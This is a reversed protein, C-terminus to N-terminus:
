HLRHSCCIRCSSAPSVGPPIHSSMRVEGKYICPTRLEKPLKLTGPSSWSPPDFGFSVEHVSTHLTRRSLISISVMSITQAGVPPAASRSLIVGATCLSESFQFDWVYCICSACPYDKLAEVNWRCHRRQESQLGVATESRKFSPLPKHKM